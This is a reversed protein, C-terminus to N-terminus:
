ECHCWWVIGHFVPPGTLLALGVGISHGDRVEGFDETVYSLRGVQGFRGGLGGAVVAVEEFEGSEDWAVSSSTTREVGNCPLHAGIILPVWMM